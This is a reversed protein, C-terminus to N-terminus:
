GKPLAGLGKQRQRATTQPVDQKPGISPSSFVYDSESAKPLERCQDSLRKALFVLCPFSRDIKTEM